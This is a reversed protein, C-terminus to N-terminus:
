RLTSEWIVSWLSEVTAIDMFVANMHKQIDALVILCEYVHYRMDADKSEVQIESLLQLLKTFECSLILEPYRRLLYTLIEIRCFAITKFNRHLMNTNKGLGTERKEFRKM